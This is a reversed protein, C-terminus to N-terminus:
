PMSRSPTTPVNTLAAGVPANPNIGQQAAALTSAQAAAFAKTNLSIHETEITAQLQDSDGMPALRITRVLSFAVDSQIAAVFRAIAAYDGKLSISYAARTELNARQAASAGAGQATPMGGPPGNPINTGM